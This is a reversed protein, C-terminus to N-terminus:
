KTEEPFDWSFGERDFHAYARKRMRYGKYQNKVFMFIGVAVAFVVLRTIWWIAGMEIPYFFGSLDSTGIQHLIGLNPAPISFQPVVPSPSLFPSPSPLPLPSPAFFM